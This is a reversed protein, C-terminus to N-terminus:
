FQAMTHFKNRKFESYSDQEEYSEIGKYTEQEAIARDQLV